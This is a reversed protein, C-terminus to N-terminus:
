EKAPVRNRKSDYLLRVVDAIARADDSTLDPLAHLHIEVNALSSTTPRMDSEFDSINKDLWRAIATVTATDPVYDSEEGSLLRSLTAPSCGVMEATKRLSLKEGTMKARLYTALLGRDMGVMGNRVQM